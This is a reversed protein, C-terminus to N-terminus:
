CEETEIWGMVGNVVGLVYTGSTPANPLIQLLIGDKTYELSYTPNESQDPLLTVKKFNGDLDKARISRPPAASGDGPKSMLDREFSHLDVQAAM